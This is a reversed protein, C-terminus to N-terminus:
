VIKLSKLPSNQPKQPVKQGIKSTKQKPVSLLLCRLGNYIQNKSSFLQSSRVTSLESLKKELPILDVKKIINIYINNIILYNYLILFSIQCMVM